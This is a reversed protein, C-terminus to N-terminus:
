AVLSSSKFDFNIVNDHITNEQKQFVFINEYKKYKHNDLKVGFHKEINKTGMIMKLTQKQKMEFMELINCSDHELTYGDVDAINWLIHGDNRLLEYANDLTPELFYDRWHEYTEFKSFSQTNHEVYREKSFYPPSTFVVCVKNKYRKFSETTHIIESGIQHYDLVVNINPNIHEKWFGLLMRYREGVIPNPDTVLYVLKKGKFIPNSAMALFGVLRGAWGGSPDYVVLEEAEDNVFQKLHNFWIWKSVEARFNTAPHGLRLRLLNTLGDSIKKPEARKHIDKRTIADFKKLFYEKDLMNEWLSNEVRNGVTRKVEVIEPFWNLIGSSYRNYGMLITDNEDNKLCVKKDHSNIDLEDLKKFDDIIQKLSKTNGIFPKKHEKYQQVFYERCELAWEKWEEDNMDIIASPTLDLSSPLVINDVYIPNNNLMNFNEM